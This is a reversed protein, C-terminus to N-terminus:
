EARKATWNRVPQYQLISRLRTIKFISTLGTKELNLIVSEFVIGHDLGGDICTKGWMGM